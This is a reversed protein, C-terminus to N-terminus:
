IGLVLGSDSESRAAAASMCAKAVSVRLAVGLRAKESAEGGSGASKSRLGGNSLGASGPERPVFPFACAVATPLANCTEGGRAFAGGLGAAPAARAAAM